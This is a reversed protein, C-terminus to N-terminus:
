LAQPPYPRTTLVVFFFDRESSEQRSRFNCHGWGFSYSYPSWLCALILRLQGSANDRKPSIGQRLWVASASWTLSHDIQPIVCLVETKRDTVLHPQISDLITKKPSQIESGLNSDLFLLGGSKHPNSRPDDNEPSVPSRRGSLCKGSDFYAFIEFRQISVSISLSELLLWFFSWSNCDARM